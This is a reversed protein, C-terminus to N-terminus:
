HRVVFTNKMYYNNGRMDSRVTMCIQGDVLDRNGLDMVAELATNREKHGM